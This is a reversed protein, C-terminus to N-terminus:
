TNSVFRGRSKTAQTLGQVSPTARSGMKALAQIVEQHENAGTGVAVGFSGFNKTDKRLDEPIHSLLLSGFQTTGLSNARAPSKGGSQRIATKVSEPTELQGSQKFTATTLLSEVGSSIFRASAGSSSITRTNSSKQNGKTPEFEM